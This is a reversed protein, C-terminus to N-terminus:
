ALEVSNIIYDCSGFAKVKQKVEFPAKSCNMEYVETVGQMFGSTFTREIKYTKLNNM